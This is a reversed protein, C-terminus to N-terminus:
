AALFNQSPTCAHDYFTGKTRRDMEM